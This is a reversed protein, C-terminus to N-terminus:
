EIEGAEYAHQIAVFVLNEYVDYDGRPFDSIDGRLGSIDGRLDPSIDGCLDPSIDGRLNEVAGTLVVEEQLLELYTM